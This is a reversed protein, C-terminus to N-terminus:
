YCGESIRHFSMSRQCHKMWILKSGSVTLETEDYLTKLDNYIEELEETSAASSFLSFQITTNEYDETFTKEPSTSVIKFVAFPYIEAEPARGKFLRSGIRNLFDSGTAKKFIATTLAKM